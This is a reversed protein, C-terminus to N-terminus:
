LERAMESLVLFIMMGPLTKQSHNVLSALQEVIQFRLVLVPIALQYGPETEATLKEVPTGAIFLAIPRGQFPNACTQKQWKLNQTCLLSTFAM